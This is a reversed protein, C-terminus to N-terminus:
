NCPDGRNGSRLTGREGSLWQRRVAQSSCRATPCCRRRTVSRATALSDAATWAGSAPDYLEASALNGDPFNYGGAVLVQGDPLLTATHSDRATTLSGTATWTGSVPDYLEASALHTVADGGAVLVQGNPLLTATHDERETALNGTPTWTGSAPDYLEASTLYGSTRQFWRRRAGPRQTALDGHSWDTPTALSGTTTWTGSVLDYLEASALIGVIYDTGGTIGGAIHVQGSPLLTATHNERETALNGTPTWTGSVPDYLEASSMSFTGDFGGAVLVKGNPLLTATHVGRGKTLSGTPTWTGSAPDYLDASALHGPSGGAVLVRGDLLLTATHGSRATTLSGTNIFAGGACSQALMLGAGLFLLPFAVRRALISRASLFGGGLSHLALFGRRTGAIVPLFAHALFCLTSVRSRSLLVTPSKDLLFVDRISVALSGETSVKLPHKVADLPIGGSVVSGSPNTVLFFALRLRAFLRLASAVYFRFCSLRCKQMTKGLTRIGGEGGTWSTQKGPRACSSTM